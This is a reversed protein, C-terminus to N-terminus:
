RQGPTEDKRWHVYFSLFILSPLLYLLIRPTTKILRWTLDFHVTTLYIVFLAIGYLLFFLTLVKTEKFFYKKFGALAMVLLLGWLYQWTPDAMAYYFAKGIALCKEFSFLPIILKLTAFSIDRNAPALFTKLILAAPLTLIIGTFIKFIMKSRIKKDSSKELLLYALSLALLLGAITVGENKIFMLLGSIFGYLLALSPNHEQLTKLLIVCSLLLYFSLVIDAYQATAMFLYFRNTILIFSALGAVLPPIYQKLGAFLLAGNLVTFLVATAIAIEELPARSFAHVWVNLFPMFLPYDPQTHWHLQFVNEWSGAGLILFKTKMNWLAWADWEGFPHSRALTYIIKTLFIFGSLWVIDIFIIQSRTKLTHISIFNKDFSRFGGRYYDLNLLFFLIILLLHIKLLEWRHFGDACLFALFTILSSAGLGIGLSMVTYLGPTLARSKKLIFSVIQCGLLFSLFYALLIMM